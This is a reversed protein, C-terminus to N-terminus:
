TPMTPDHKWGGDPLLSFRDVMLDLYTPLSSVNDGARHRDRFRPLVAHLAMFLGSMRVAARQLARHAEEVTQVDIAETRAVTERHGRTGYFSNWQVPEGDDSPAVLLLDHVIRNRRTNADRVASISARGAELLEPDVGAQDLRTMCAAALRETGSVSAEEEAPPAFESLAGFVNRLKYELDAHARVLRGIALSLRDDPSLHDPPDSADM